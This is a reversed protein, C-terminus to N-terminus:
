PLEIGALLNVYYDLRQIEKELTCIAKEIRKKEEPSLKALHKRSDEFETLSNGLVKKVRMVIAKKLITLLDGNLEVYLRRDGTKKVRKIVEMLELFDISLSIMSASYGTGKAMGELSVPKGELLLVGIIKGHLPSYGITEAVAAFSELIKRELQKETIEGTM